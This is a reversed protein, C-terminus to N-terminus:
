RDAGEGASISAAEQRFPRAELAHASAYDVKESERTQARSGNSHSSNPVSRSILSLSPANYSPRFDLDNLFDDFETIFGCLIAHRRANITEHQGIIQRVLFCDRTQLLDNDARGPRRRYARDFNKANM